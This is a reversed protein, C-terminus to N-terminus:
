VFTAAFYSTAAIRRTGTNLMAHNIYIEVIRLLAARERPCAEYDGSRDSSFCARDPPSYLSYPANKANTINRPRSRLTVEQRPRGRDRSKGITRCKNGRERGGERRDKRALPGKIQRFIWRILTITLARNRPHVRPKHEARAYLRSLSRHHSASRRERVYDRLTTRLLASLATDLTTM